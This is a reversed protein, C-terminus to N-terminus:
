APPGGALPVGMVRGDEDIGRPRCALGLPCDEGVLVHDLIGSVDDLNPLDGLLINEAVGKRQEMDVTETKCEM